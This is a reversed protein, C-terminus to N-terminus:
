RNIQGFYVHSEVRVRNNVESNQLCFEKLKFATQLVDKKEERGNLKRKHCKDKM